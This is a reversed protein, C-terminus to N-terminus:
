SAFCVYLIFSFEPPYFFRDSSRIAYLLCHGGRFPMKLAPVLYRAGLSRTLGVNGLAM